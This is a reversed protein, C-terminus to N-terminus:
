KAPTNKCANHDMYMLGQAECYSMGGRVRGCRGGIEVTQEKTVFCDPHEVPEYSVQRINPNGQAQALLAELDQNNMDRFGELNLPSARRRQRFHIETFDHIKRGTTPGQHAEAELNNEERTSLGVACSCAILLVLTACIQFGKSTMRLRRTLGKLSIMELNSIAL